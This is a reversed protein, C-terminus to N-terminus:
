VPHHPQLPCAPDEAFAQGCARVSGLRDSCLSSTFAVARRRTEGKKSLQQGSHGYGRSPLFCADAAPPRRAASVPLLSHATKLLGDDPCWGPALWAVSISTSSCAERYGAFCGREGLMASLPQRKATRHATRCRYECGRVGPWPEGKQDSM